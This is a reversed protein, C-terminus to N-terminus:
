MSEETTGSEPAEILVQPEDCYADSHISNLPCSPTFWGYLEENPQKSLRCAVNTTTPLVQQGGNVFQFGVIPYLVVDDGEKEERPMKVDVLAPAAAPHRGMIAGPISFIRSVFNKKPVKTTTNEEESLLSKVQIVDSDEDNRDCSAEFAAMLQKGQEPLLCLHTTTRSAESRPVSFAEVSSSSAAALALCLALSTSRSM